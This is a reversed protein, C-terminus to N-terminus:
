SVRKIDNDTKGALELLAIIKRRNEMEQIRLRDNEGCLKTNIKREQILADRMDSVAKQLANIERKQTAVEKELHRTRDSLKSSSQFRRLWAQEEDAFKELKSHYFELLEKSPPLRRLMDLLPTTDEDEPNSGAM